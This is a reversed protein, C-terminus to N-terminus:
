SQVPESLQSTFGNRRPTFLALLRELNAIGQRFALSGDNEIQAQEIWAQVMTPTLDGNNTAAILSPAASTTSEGLHQAVLILDQINIIGDRNIDAQPNASADEGFRQSVLIMDLVNVQGDKNVDGVALQREITFVVEHPGAAIPEGTTSGFQFNNLTLQTEGEAKALFTVSLLTGTGTAGDENFRTAM